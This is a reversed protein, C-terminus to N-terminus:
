AREPMKGARVSVTVADTFTARIIDNVEELTLSKLIEIEKGPDPLTDPHYFIDLLANYLRGSCSDQYKLTKFLIRERASEFEEQDLGEAELRRIESKLLLTTDEMRDCRTQAYFAFWGPHFGGSMDMGVAYALANDERIRKFLKASLGNEAANLMQFVLHTRPDSLREGKIAVIVATQERSLPIDETVSSDPFCPEQPFILEQEDFSMSNLLDSAYQMAEEQSIDGSFGAATRHINTIQAYYSVIDSVKLRELSAETGHSGAAIPHKGLLLEKTRDFATELAATKRSALLELMRTKEREFERQEFRPATLIEKLLAFAKAFSKRPANLDVLFSNAGANVSFEAGFSDFLTLIESESHQASGAGLLAQLLKTMGSKEPNEFIIGGPFIMSFHIMPISHEPLHLVPILHSVPLKTLTASKKEALQKPASTRQSSLQRIICFQEEQLCIKAIERIQEPTTRDLKKQYFDGFDPNGCDLIGAGIISSIHELDELQRLYEASQQTKERRIEATSIDGNAVKELEKRIGKELKGLKDPAAVATIGAVGSGPLTYCFSRVGLALPNELEFKRNMRSAAGMGLLGFLIDTAPMDTLAQEPLKLGLTLRAVTDPFVFETVRPAIQQPEEPFPPMEELNKAQWSGLRSELLEFVTDPDAAGTIVWFCRGPTYRQAHYNMAMDRTVQSIMEKRGIIPIRMPHRLFLTKFFTEQLQRSPDDQTRDYERLIVEREANFRAQPLEPFRVMSSLIELILPLKEAGGKAHYVTRDFSTYANVSCGAKGLTDAVATGPYGKCGQFLMHELFHSLGCGLFSGEHISGTRIYCEAMVTGGPRPLVYIEMGNDLRRVQTRSYFNM